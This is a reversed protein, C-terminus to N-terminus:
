VQDVVRFRNAMGTTELLQSVPGDNLALSLERGQRRMREAAHVLVGLVSSEMFTVDRLDILPASTCDGVAQSLAARMGRSAHLDLEGQLTIVTPESM